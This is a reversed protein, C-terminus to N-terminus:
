TSSIASSSFCPASTFRFLVSEDELEGPGHRGLPGTRAGHGHVAHARPPGPRPRPPGPPSPTSGPGGCRQVVPNTAAGQAGQAGARAAGAKGPHTGM